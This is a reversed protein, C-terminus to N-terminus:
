LLFIKKAMGDSYRVITIGKGPAPIPRGNLDYYGIITATEYHPPDIGTVPDDSCSDGNITFCANEIYYIASDVNGAEMSPQFLPGGGNFAGVFVSELNASLIIEGIVTEWQKGSYINGTIFRIESANAYRIMVGINSSAINCSDCLQLDFQWRLTDGLGGEIPQSLASLRFTDVSYALVVACQKGFPSDQPYIRGTNARYYDVASTDGAIGSSFGYVDWECYIMPAIPGQACYEFGPNVTAQGALLLACLTFLITFILRKM